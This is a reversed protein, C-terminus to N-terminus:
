RSSPAPQECKVTNLNYAENIVRLVIRSWTLNQQTYAIVASRMERLGTPNRAVQELINGLAEFDGPEFLYGTHADVIHDKAGAIRTGIIPTGCIMAEILVRGFGETYSPLLLADAASYWIPLDNQPVWDAQTIFDTMGLEHIKQKILRAQPGSGFLQFKIASGALVERHRAFTEITEVIAKEQSFRGVFLLLITDPSLGM